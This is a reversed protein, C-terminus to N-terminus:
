ALRAAFGELYGLGPIARVGYWSVMEADIMEVRPAWPATLSRVEALHKQKFPFPETSLLVFEVGAMLTDNFTVEPYRVDNLGGVTRLKALGLTRSIYTDESITMWPDRWILYLVKRPKLPTISEILSAHAREFDACLREALRRRQFMAGLLRFLRLNDEPEIPHTVVIECGMAAIADVDEKRNEDVNVIVHSPKVRELKELSVTKTGGLRAVREVRPAPHICFTTRGVLREQLELAFLLETISPVLSVIRASADAPRHTVGADDTLPNQDM